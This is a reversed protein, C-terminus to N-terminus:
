AAEPFPRAHDLTRSVEDAPLPKAFLFGQAGDCDLAQLFAVQEPRELGEAVVSLGLNHALGIVAQVVAAANRRGDAGFLFERDIKITDVPFDHLCTLSSHGTGFDDVSLGVGQARLAQLFQRAGEPDDMVASEAVELRLLRPELGTTALARRLTPLFEADAFQKRSLNVSVWPRVM